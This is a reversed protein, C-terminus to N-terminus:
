RDVFRKCNYDESGFMQKVPLSFRMKADKSQTRLRLPTKGTGADPGISVSLVWVGPNLRWSQEGLSAAESIGGRGLNGVEFSCESM